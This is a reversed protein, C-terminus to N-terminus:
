QRSQHIPQHETKNIRLLRQVRVVRELRAHIASLAAGNIEEGKERASITDHLCDLSDLLLEVAEKKIVHAIDGTKDPQGSLDRLIALRKDFIVNDM